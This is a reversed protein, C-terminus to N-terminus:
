CCNYVVWRQSQAVDEVNLADRVKVVISDSVNECCYQGLFAVALASRVITAVAVSILDLFPDVPMTVTIGTCVVFVRCL